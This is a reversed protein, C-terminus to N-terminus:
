NNVTILTSTHQPGWAKEKEALARSYMREADELRGQDKYLTGLNNVTNLTSTHDPGWAKEKGALARNYMREADELRDQDKYLIGLNNVTDLTSTDDPGYAKEYGALACHYMREADQHRGHGQYLIGFTFCAGFFRDSEMSFEEVQRITDIHSVAEQRATYENQDTSDLYNELHSVATALFTFGSGKDLRMRLWESVM